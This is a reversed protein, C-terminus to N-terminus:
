FVKGSKQSYASEKNFAKVAFKEGTDKREVLYVHAFNGKGLKKLAKFTEHFGIQNIKKRLLTYIKVYIEENETFFSYKEFKNDISFGKLNEGNPGVTLWTIRM